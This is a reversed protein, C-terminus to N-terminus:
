KSLVIIKEKGSPGRKQTLHLQGDRIQYQYNVKRGRSETTLTSTNNDITYTGTEPEKKKGGLEMQTIFEYTGDKRFEFSANTFMELMLKYAMTVMMSDQETFDTDAAKAQAFAKRFNEETNELVLENKKEDYIKVFKWKGTLPSDQAIVSSTAFFLVIMVILPKMM